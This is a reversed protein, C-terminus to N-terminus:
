VLHQARPSLKAAPRSLVLVRPGRFLTHTVSVEQERNNSLGNIPHSLLSGFSLVRSLRSLETGFRGNDVNCLTTHYGLGSHISLTHSLISGRFIIKLQTTVRNVNYSVSGNYVLIDNNSGGLRNSVVSVAASGNTKGINLFTFLRKGHISFSLGGITGVSKFTGGM